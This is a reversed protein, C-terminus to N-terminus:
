YSVEEANIAEAPLEINVAKNYDSFTMDMNMLMTMKDFDGQTAGVAEPAIDMTIEAEAKVIQYNSKAVWYKIGFKSILKSLDFESFDFSQSFESGLQSMMYDWLADMDPEIELVYCDIGGVRESKLLTSKTSSEMLSTLQALQDQSLENDPMKIKTWQTGTGLIDMKIYTWGEVMYMEASASVSMKSSGLGSVEMNMDMFMQAKKSPKDGAGTGTADITMKGSDSGGTVEMDMAVGYDVKYSAVKEMANLTSALIEQATPQESSKCSTLMLSVALILSMVIYFISRKKRKM